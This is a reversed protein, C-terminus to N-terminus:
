FSVISECCNRTGAQEFGTGELIRQGKHRTIRLRRVSMAKDVGVTMENIIMSSRLGDPREFIRAYLM